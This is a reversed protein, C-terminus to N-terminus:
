VLNKLDIALLKLLVAKTINQKLVKIVYNVHELQNLNNRESQERSLEKFLPHNAITKADLRELPNKKLCGAIFDQMEQSIKAKQSPKLIYQNNLVKKKIEFQDKGIFYIEDFLIQHAM